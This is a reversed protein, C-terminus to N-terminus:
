QFGAKKGKLYKGMTARHPYNFMKQTLVNTFSKPANVNVGHMKRTPTFNVEM